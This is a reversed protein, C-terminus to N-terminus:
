SAVDARQAATDCHMYWRRAGSGVQQAAGLAKESSFGPCVRPTNAATCCMSLVSNKKILYNYLQIL